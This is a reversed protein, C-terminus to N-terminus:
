LCQEDGNRHGGPIAHIEEAVVQPLDDWDDSQLRGAIGQGGTMLHAAEIGDIDAIGDM